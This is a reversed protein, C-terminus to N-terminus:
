NRYIIRGYSLINELFGSKDSTGCFIVPEIRLDINRRLKYLNYEADIINGDLKDTVIAIDIDSWNNETGRAFSGFLIVMSVPMIKRVQETFRNVKDIVSSDM